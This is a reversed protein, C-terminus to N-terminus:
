CYSVKTIRVNPNEKQFLRKAKNHNCKENNGHVVDVFIYKKTSIVWFGNDKKYDYVIQYQEKFTNEQKKKKVM